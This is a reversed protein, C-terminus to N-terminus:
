PFYCEEVTTPQRGLQSLPNTEVCIYKLYFYDGWRCATYIFICIYGGECADWYLASRFALSAMENISVNSGPSCLYNQFLPILGKLNQHLPSVMYM